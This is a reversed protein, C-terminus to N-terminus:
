KGSQFSSSENRWGTVAPPSSIKKQFVRSDATSVWLWAPCVGGWQGRSLCTSGMALLEPPLPPLGRCIVSRADMVPSPSILM